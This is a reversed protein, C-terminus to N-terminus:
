RPLRDERSSKTCLRCAPKWTTTSTATSGGLARITPFWISPSCRRRCSNSSMRASEMRSLWTATGTRFDIAYRRKLADSSPHTAM